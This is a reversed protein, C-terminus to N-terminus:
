RKRSQSAPTRAKYGVHLADWARKAEVMARASETTKQIAHIQEAEQWKGWVQSDLLLVDALRALTQLSPFTGSGKFFRRKVDPWMRIVFRIADSVARESGGAKRILAYAQAKEKNAWMNARVPAYAADFESRWVMELRSVPTAAKAKMFRDLGRRANAGDRAKEFRTRTDKENEEDM